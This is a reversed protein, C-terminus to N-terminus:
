KRIRIEKNSHFYTVSKEKLKPYLDYVEIWFKDLIVESEIYCEKARRDDDNDIYADGLERMARSKVMIYNIRSSIKYRKKFM